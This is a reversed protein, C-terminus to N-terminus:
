EARLLSFRRFGTLSCGVLVLFAMFRIISRVSIAREQIVSRLRAAGQVAGDTVGAERQPEPVSTSDALLAVAPVNLRYVTAVPPVPVVNPVLTVDADKVVGVM